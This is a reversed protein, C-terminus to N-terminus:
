VSCAEFASVLRRYHDFAPVMWVVPCLLRLIPRMHLSCVGVWASEGSPPIIPQPPNSWLKIHMHPHALVGAWEVSHRPRCVGASM